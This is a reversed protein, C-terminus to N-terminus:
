VHWNGEPASFASTVILATSGTEPPLRPLHDAGGVDGDFHAQLPRREDPEGCQLRGGQRGDGLQGYAVGDALVGGVGPPLLEFSGRDVQRGLVFPLHVALAYAITLACTADHQGGGSVDGGDREAAGSTGRDRGGPQAEGEGGEGLVAGGGEGGSSATVQSGASSSSRGSARMVTRSLVPGAAGEGLSGAGPSPAESGGAFGSRGAGPTSGSAWRFISSRVSARSPARSSSSGPLQGISIGGSHTIVVASVYAAPYALATFSSPAAASPGANMFTTRFLRYM